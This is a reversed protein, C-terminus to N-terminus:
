EAEKKSKTKDDMNPLEEMLNRLADLFEPNKKVMALFKKTREDREAELHEPTGSPEFTRAEMTPAQKTRVGQPATPASPEVLRFKPDEEEPRVSQELADLMDRDNQLERMRAQTARIDDQMSAIIKVQASELASPTVIKPTQRIASIRETPPLIPTPDDPM